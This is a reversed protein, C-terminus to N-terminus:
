SLRASGPSSVGFMGVKQDGKGGFTFTGTLDNVGMTM